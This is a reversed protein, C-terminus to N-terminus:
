RTANLTKIVKDTIDHKANVYVSEQLILDYKEADAVQRVAKNAKDLVQQLEENSSTAYPSPIGDPNGIGFDKPRGIVISMRERTSEMELIGKIENM